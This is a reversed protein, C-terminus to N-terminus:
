RVQMHRIVHQDVWQDTDHVLKEQREQLTHLFFMLVLTLLLAVYTANFAIGLDATVGSIDGGVAKNAQLLADGIHRVTGIFGIAPISWAVFRVIGLSSDRHDAEADCVGRSTEAADRISRTASFRELARQM